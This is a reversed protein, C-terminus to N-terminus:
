LPKFYKSSLVLDSFLSTIKSLHYDLKYLATNTVNNMYNQSLYKQETETKVFVILDSFAFAFHIRQSYNNCHLVAFLNQFKLSIIDFVKKQVTLGFFFLVRTEPFAPSSFFKMRAAAFKNKWAIKRLYERKKM